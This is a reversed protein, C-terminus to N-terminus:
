TKKVRIQVRTGEALSGNQLEIIGNRVIGEFEQQTQTPVSSRVPPDGTGLRNTRVRTGKRRPM